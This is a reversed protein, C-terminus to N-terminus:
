VRLLHSPINTIYRNSFLPMRSSCGAFSDAWNLWRFHDFGIYTLFRWDHHIQWQFFFFMFKVENQIKQPAHLTSAFYLLVMLHTVLMSTIADYSPNYRLVFAFVFCDISIQIFTAGVYVFLLPGFCRNFQVILDGFLDCNSKLTNLRSRVNNARFHNAELQLSKFAISFSWGLCIFLSCASRSYLVLTM